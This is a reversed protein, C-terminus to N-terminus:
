SAREKVVVAPVGAAVVQAPLTRTVVAGAAVISQDGVDALVIAGSGIWCDRGIRVTRLHGPQLRIPLDLRSTGAGGMFSTSFVGGQLRTVLLLLLYLAFGMGLVALAMLVLLLRTNRHAQEQQQFFNRM